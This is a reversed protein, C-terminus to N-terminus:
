HILIYKKTFNISNYTFFRELTNDAEIPLIFVQNSLWEGKYKEVIGKNRKDGRLFRVTKVKKSASLNNLKYIYLVKSIFRFKESFPRDNKLSYGERLLTTILTPPNDIFDIPDLMSIHFGEIRVNTKKNTILALDIDNPNVKGKIASGFLVVDLIKKDKVLSNIKNKIKRIESNM